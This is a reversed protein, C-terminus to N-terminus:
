LPGGADIRRVEARWEHDDRAGRGFMTSPWRELEEESERVGVGGRGRTGADRGATDVGVGFNNEGGAEGLAPGRWGAEACVWATSSGGAGDGQV